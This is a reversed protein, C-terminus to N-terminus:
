GNSSSPMRMAAWKCLWGRRKGTTIRRLSLGQETALKVLQQRSKELLISDTPHAIAKPMLTTDVIVKDM